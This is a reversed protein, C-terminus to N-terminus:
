TYLICFNTRNWAICDSISCDCIKKLFVSYSHRRGHQKYGFQMMTIDLSIYKTYLNEHLKMWYFSPTFQDWFNRRNVVTISRFRNLSKKGFTTLCRNINPYRQIYFKMFNQANKSSSCMGCFKERVSVSLCKGSITLDHQLCGLVHLDMLFRFNFTECFWYKRRNMYFSTIIIIIIIIIRKSNLLM